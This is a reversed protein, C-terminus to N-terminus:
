ASWYSTAGQRALKKSLGGDFTAVADYHGASAVAALIADGFSDIVQPWRELVLPWSVEERPLVGPMALLESVLQAVQAPEQQYLQTLVYVMEIISITHLVLTHEREVAARFLAAAKKRQGEERDTLFSVLVNTDVLIEKM